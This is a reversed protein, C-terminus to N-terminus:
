KCDVRIRSILRSSIEGNELCIAPKQYSFIDQNEDSIISDLLPLFWDQRGLSFLCGSSFPIPLSLRDLDIVLSLDDIKVSGDCSDINCNMSLAWCLMSFRSCKFSSFCIFAILRSSNISHPKPTLNPSFNILNTWFPVFGPSKWILNWYMNARRALM